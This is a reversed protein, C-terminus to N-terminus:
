AKVVLTGAAMDGIRQNQKSIAVVILGLLYLFPLGDIIRLVTRIAVKGLTLPGDIAVVKIGMVKKGLTQGAMTELGLYYALVILFYIIGPAGSLNVSFGDDDSKTDGFLAAMLGFVVALLIIDILAAVIRIGTVNERPAPPPSAAQEENM